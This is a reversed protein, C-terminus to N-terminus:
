QNIILKYKIKGKLVLFMYNANAVAAFISSFLLISFYMKDFHLIYIMLLTLALSIVFSITIKKLFFKVDTNKYKFYQGVAILLTTIFAFPLQWSNYFGIVDKAPAKNLNFLKNWVPMSTYFMIQFSSVLLVIAGVFMWFERSWIGDEEKQRPFLKWNIILLYIGLLLFFFLYILLQGSMGLDTFAAAWVRLGEGMTAIGGGWLLLTPTPTALWFVAIAFAFGLPVRLRALHRALDAM